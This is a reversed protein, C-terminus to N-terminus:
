SNVGLMMKGIQGIDIESSDKIGVLMGRFVVAIKTSLFLLEDLEESALIM